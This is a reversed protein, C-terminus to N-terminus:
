APHAKIAATAFAHEGPSMAAWDDKDADTYLAAVTRSDLRLAASKKAAVLQALVPWDAMRHMSAHRFDHAADTYPSLTWGNALLETRVAERAQQAGEPDRAGYRAVLGCELLQAIISHDLDSSMDPKECGIGITHGRDRM